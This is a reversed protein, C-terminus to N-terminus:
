GEKSEASDAALAARGTESITFRSVLSTNSLQELMGAKFLALYTPFAITEEIRSGRRIYAQGGTRGYNPFYSLDTGESLLKELVEVQTKSLKM